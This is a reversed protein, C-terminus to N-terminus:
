LGNRWATSRPCKTWAYFHPLSLEQVLKKFSGYFESGNDTQIGTITAPYVRMLSRLFSGAGSGDRREAVQVYAFRSFTDIVVFAFCDGPLYMTNM